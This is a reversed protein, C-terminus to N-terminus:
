GRSFEGKIDNESFTQVNNGQEAARKDQEAKNEALMICRIPRIWDAPQQWLGVDFPLANDFMRYDSYYQIAINMKHVIYRSPKEDLYYKDLEPRLRKRRVIAAQEKEAPSLDPPIQHKYEM